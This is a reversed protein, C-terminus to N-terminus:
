YGWGSGRDSVKRLHVKLLNGGGLIFAVSALISFWTAVDEGWGRTAPLFSSVVLAVGAIATILIPVTRRM